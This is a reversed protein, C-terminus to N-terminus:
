QHEDNIRDLIFHWSGLCIFLEHSDISQLLQETLSLLPKYRYLKLKSGKM